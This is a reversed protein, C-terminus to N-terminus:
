IHNVVSSFLHTQRVTNKQSAATKRGQQLFVWTKLPAAIIQQCVHANAELVSEDAKFDVNGMEVTRQRPRGAPLLQIAKETALQDLFRIRSKM